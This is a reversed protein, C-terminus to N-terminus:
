HTKQFIQDYISSTMLAGTVSLHNDDLYLPRGESAVPCKAEDCVLRDPWLFRVPYSQGIRKFMALIAANRRMFSARPADLDRHIFGLHQIYLAKPIRASAEPVPGVIWVTKKADVLKSILEKLGRDFKLENAGLSSARGDQDRLRIDVVGESPSGPQGNSWKTWRSSLVVSTIDPRMAVRLMEINYKECFRYSPSSLYAPGKLDISFGLGIPCDASAAFLFSSGTRRASAEMATATVMAHSDGWLLANPTGAEPSGLRCAQTPLVIRQDESMCERHHRNKDLDADLYKASVADMRYPFGGSLRIGIGAGCLIAMGFTAALVFRPIAVRTQTFRFPNEVFRLSIEAAFYAFFILLAAHVADPKGLTVYENFAFIPFHWLYFSYSARGVSLFPATTLLRHVPTSKFKGSWLLLATGSVPVIAAYGPYPIASSLLAVSGCVLILGLVSAALLIGQRFQPVMGTAIIGGALLEWARTPGLFFTANPKFAVMVCCAALSLILIAAMAALRITRDFRSLAILFLPYFLYFQEEISLSWTHLLPNESAPAAFYGIQKWFFINSVFLNTAIVSEGLTQYDTPTMLIFGALVTAATMVILAPFIRRIRRQYFGALSFRGAVIDPLIISTILFGSIVFFVDVGVFGGSFGPIEGHFLVVSVVAIARLGDIDPRYHIHTKLEASQSSQM